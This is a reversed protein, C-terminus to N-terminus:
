GKKFSLFSIVRGSNKWVDKPDSGRSDLIQYLRCHFFIISDFAKMSMVHKQFSFQMNHWHFCCPRHPDSGRCNLPTRNRLARHLICIKLIFSHIFVLQLSFFTNEPVMRSFNLILWTCKFPKHEISDTGYPNLFRRTMITRLNSGRIM